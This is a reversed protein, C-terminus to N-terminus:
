CWHFIKNTKALEVWSFFATPKPFSPFSFLFFSRKGNGSDDTPAYNIFPGPIVAKHNDMALSISPLSASCPFVYGGQSSSYSASPIAGYYEEVVAYPLYLLTTGTDAIADISVSKFDGNSGVSYGNSTFGWFGRSSDVPVYTIAGTYKSDDIFGFNYSGPANKKLDVTFLPNSLTSKANDFFTLQKTPQVTNLADIDARNMCLSLWPILFHFSKGGWEGTNGSSFSLGLLGDSDVDRLFQDSIRTAVEVAQGTVSTGGAKVTDTYVDGGAGSGDGYRISWTYGKKQVATTSRSPDYIEHGATDTASLLSSFVWSFHM